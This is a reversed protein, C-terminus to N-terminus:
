KLQRRRPAISLRFLSATLASLGTVLGGTLASVLVMLIPQSLSFLGGVRKSLVHENANDILFAILFWLVFCGLFGAMFSKWPPQVIIFGVVLGGVAIIWWPFLIGALYNVVATLVIAIIFRMM